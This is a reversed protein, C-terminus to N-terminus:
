VASPQDLVCDASAKRRQSKVPLSATRVSHSPLRQIDESTRDIDLIEVRRLTGAAMPTTAVTAMAPSEMLEASATTDFWNWRLQVHFREFQLAKLCDL